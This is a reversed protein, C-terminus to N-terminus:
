KKGSFFILTEEKKLLFSINNKFVEFAKMKETNEDAENLTSADDDLFSKYCVSAIMKSFHAFIESNYFCDEQFRKFNPPTWMTNKKWIPFLRGGELTNNASELIQKPSIQEASQFLKPWYLDSSPGYNESLYAFIFEVKEKSNM